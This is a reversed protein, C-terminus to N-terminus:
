IERIKIQQGPVVGDITMNNLQKIASLKAGDGFFKVAISWLTDGEGVTYLEYKSNLEKVHQNARAKRLSRSIVMLLAVVVVIAVVVGIITVAPSAATLHLLEKQLM